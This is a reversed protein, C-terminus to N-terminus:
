DIPKQIFFDNRDMPATEYRIKMLINGIGISILQEHTMGYSRNAAYSGYELTDLLSVPNIIANDLTIEM